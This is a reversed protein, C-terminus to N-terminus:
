VFHAALSSLELLLRIWFALGLLGKKALYCRCFCSRRKWAASLRYFVQALVSDSTYKRPSKTAKLHKLSQLTRVSCYDKEGLKCAGVSQDGIYCSYPLVASSAQTCVSSSQSYSRAPALHQLSVKVFAVFSPHFGRQDFRLLQFSRRGKMLM